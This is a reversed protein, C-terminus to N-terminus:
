FRRIQKNNYQLVFMYTNTKEDVQIYEGNEIYDFNKLKSMEKKLEVKFKKVAIYDGLPYHCYMYCINNTYAYGPVEIPESDKLIIIPKSYDPPIGIPYVEFGFGELYDYIKEFM